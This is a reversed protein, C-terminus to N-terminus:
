RAKKRRFSLTTVGLLLVGITAPEPVPSASLNVGWTNGAGNYPLQRYKPAQDRYGYYSRYGTVDSTPLVVGSGVSPNGCVLAFWEDQGPALTIDLAALGGFFYEKLTLGGFNSPSGWNGTGGAMTGLTWTQAYMPADTLNVFNAEPGLRVLTLLTQEALNEETLGSILSISNVRMSLVPDAKAQLIGLRWAETNNDGGGWKVIAGINGDVDGSSTYGQHLFVAQSTAPVVVLALVLSAVSM